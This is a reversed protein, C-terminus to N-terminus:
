CTNLHPRRSLKFGRPQFSSVPARCCWYALYKTIGESGCIQWIEIRVAKSVGKNLEALFGALRRFLELCPALVESMLLNQCSKKAITFDAVLTLPLDYAVQCRRLFVHWRNGIFNGLCNEFFQALSSYIESYPCYYHLIM